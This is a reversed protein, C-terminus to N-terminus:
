VLIGQVNKRTMLTIYFFPVNLLQNILILFYFTRLFYRGEISSERIKRWLWVVSMSVSEFAGSEFSM